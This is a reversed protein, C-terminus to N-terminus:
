QGSSLVVHAMQRVDVDVQAWLRGVVMAACGGGCGWGKIATGRVTARARM